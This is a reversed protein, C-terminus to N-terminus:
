VMCNLSQRWLSNCFSALKDYLETEKFFDPIAKQILIFYEILLLILYVFKKRIYLHIKTKYNVYSCIANSDNIFFENTDVVGRILRSYINQEKKIHLSKLPATFQILQIFLNKCKNNNNNNRDMPFIYPAIGDIYRGEFKHAPSTIFPIHASRLICTILHARNEFHSVVCQKSQETDYYNIFFIDNLRSVDAEAPFLQLIASNVIQEFVFFNKNTKYHSFLTEIYTYITDPCGCLYWVAILSGISCGSVKNIKIYNLKELHHLYLAAGIGMLGNVAGSDFILNLERVTHPEGEPKVNVSLAKIYQQLLNVHFLPSSTSPTESM